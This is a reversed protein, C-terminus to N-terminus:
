DRKRRTTRECVSLGPSEARSAVLYQRLALKVVVSEHTGLERAQHRIRDRIEHPLSISFRTPPHDTVEM